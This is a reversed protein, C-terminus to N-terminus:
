LLSVIIASVIGFVILAILTRIWGKLFTEREYTYAPYLLLGIVLGWLNMFLFMLVGIVTKSEGRPGM